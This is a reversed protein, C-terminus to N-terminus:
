GLRGSEHPVTEKILKEWETELWSHRAQVEQPSLGLTGCILHLAEQELRFVDSLFRDTSHIAQNPSVPGEILFRTVPHLFVRPDTMKPDFTYEDLTEIPTPFKFLILPLSLTPEPDDGFQDFYREHLQDLSLLFEGYILPSSM